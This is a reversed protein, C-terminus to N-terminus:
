YGVHIHDDHDGLPFSPGGLGLLSIVQKPQLEEPLLLISRVSRETVGGPQQNGLISLGEVSAIDVALGYIHASIVGPRSYLGHGSYLSSVTVQGHVNALYRILVLVRVDIKGSRIDGEGGWYVDIRPDRLILRQLRPKAHDLGTVLSLLGVARNYRVLALAREAFSDSGSLLRLARAPNKRAGLASLRGAVIQLELSGAPVSSREGSTRLVALVTAWGVGNERAAKVLEDAFAPDLREAPSIPDPLSRQLWIGGATARQLREREREEKSKRHPRKKRIYTPRPDPRASAPVAQPDAPRWSPEPDPAPDPKGQPSTSRSRWPRKAPETPEPTTPESSPPPEPPPPPEPEAPSTGTEETSTMGVQGHADAGGALMVGAVFLAVFALATAALRPYRHRRPIAREGGEAANQRAFSPHPASV